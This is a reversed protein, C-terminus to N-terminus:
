GSEDQIKQDWDFPKQTIREWIGVIDKTCSEFHTTADFSKTVFVGDKVGDTLPEYTDLVYVFKKLYKGILDMGIKVEKEPNDTEVTTSVLAIYKGKPCTRNSFSTCCVYIDHKRNAQRQPIIIQCSGIGDTVCALPHDLLCIVRIVKGTKRVKKQLYAPSGIVMKCKAIKGDSQVGNVRGNEDYHLKEVDKDLMYTGGYVACLRSFAQSLEGLGYLPYIYPSLGYRALSNAYLKMKTVTPLAPKDLYEDTTYLAVAHGLFEITDAGVGYKKFLERATMKTLDYGKHTDPKKEDYNGVYNLLKKARIKELWGMLSSKAADGATVPVKFIKGKRYVFSGEIKSFDMNYRTVGSLHLLKVLNGNAMLLKPILDVCWDRIRGLDKPPTKDDGQVQNSFKEFLEELNLSASEGGYYKNKDLHLVKYKHRALYGALICSSLDTGVVICDYVTEGDFPSPPDKPKEESM